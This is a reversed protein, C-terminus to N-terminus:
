EAATPVEFVGWGDTATLPPRTEREGLRRVLLTAGFRRAFDELEAPSFDDWPRSELTEKRADYLPKYAAGQMMVNVDTRHHVVAREGLFRWSLRDPPALVVANPPANDRTWRQLAALPADRAEGDPRFTAKEVGLLALRAVLLWAACSAVFAVRRAWRSEGRGSAGLLLLWAGFAWLAGDARAMALMAAAFAARRWLPLSADRLIPAAGWAGLLLAGWGLLFLGRLSMQAAEFLGPAVVPIAMQAVFQLVCVGIAVVAVFLGGQALRGERRARAVGLSAFAAFAIM